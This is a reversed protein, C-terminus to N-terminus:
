DDGEEDVINTIMSELYEPTIGDVSVIKDRSNLGAVIEIQKADIDLTSALLEVLEDNVTPDDPAATLRVKLIGDDQIGVVETRATRTVVRVNFAAGGSADTIEFKRKM